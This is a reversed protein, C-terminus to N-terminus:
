TQLKTRNLKAVIMGILITKCGAGKGAKIDSLNDGILWPEKLDINKEMAAKFLLGPLPKRCDCQMRYKEIVAEPHHLCYYEGDLEAGDGILESNMRQRILEFNRTTMHGKAIGPQNSVLISLYGADHLKKLAETVGPILKFQGPTFPSDIVEQEQHYVLENIVGDRDLFVARNM